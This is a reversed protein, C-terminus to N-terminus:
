SCCMRPRNEIPMWTRPATLSLSRALSLSLSLSLSPPLSLSLSLPLSLSLTERERVRQGKRQGEGRRAVEIKEGETGAEGIGWKEREEGQEWRPTCVRFGKEPSEITEKGDPEFLTDSYTLATDAGHEWMKRRVGCVLARACVCRASACARVSLQTQAPRAFHQFSTRSEREREIEREREREREREIERKREREREREREGERGGERGGERV